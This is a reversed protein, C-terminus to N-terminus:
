TQQVEYEAVQVQVEEDPVQWHLPVKHLGPRGGWTSQGPLPPPLLCSGVERCDGPGDQDIWVCFKTFNDM